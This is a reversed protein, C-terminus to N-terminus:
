EQVTYEELSWGRKENTTPHYAEINPPRNPQPALAWDIYNPNSPHELSAKLWHTRLFEMAAYPTAAVGAVYWEGPWDVTSIVFVKM